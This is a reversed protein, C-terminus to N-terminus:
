EVGSLMAERTMTVGISTLQLGSGDGSDARVFTGTSDRRHIEIGYPPISNVFAIEELSAVLAYVGFKESRDFDETSPSLVEVIPKPDDVETSQAPPTPGCRVFFDPYFYASETRGAAPAIKLQMDAMYPACRTGQIAAGVAMAINFTIRHHAHSGVAMGKPVQGQWAYIVGELYEHKHRARSELALYDDATLFAAAKRGYGM